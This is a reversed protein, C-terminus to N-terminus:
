LDALNITRGSPPQPKDKPRSVDCGLKWHKAPRGKRLKDDISEYITNLASQLERYGTSVNELNLYSFTWNDKLDQWILFKEDKYSMRAENKKM